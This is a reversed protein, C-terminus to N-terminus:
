SFKLILRGVEVYFQWSGVSLTRGNHAVARKKHTNNNKYNKGCSFGPIKDNKRPASCTTNRLSTKAARASSVIKDM